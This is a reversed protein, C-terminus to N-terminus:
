LNNKLWQLQRAIINEFHKGKFMDFHYAQPEIHCTKPATIAQYLALGHEVPIVKDWEALVVFTPQTLKQANIKPQYLIAELVTLYPVKINLAPYDHKAHEYFRRSEEDTMVKIIPVMLERGSQNKKQQMREMTNMFREREEEAMDGTVLRNGSAFGMQSIVCKIEPCRVAVDIVLCGGLSTGWLAIRKADIYSQTKSWALVAIIDNNQQEPIIRGQDGGSEGFGRYDFTIAHYGAQAFAQAYLPLLLDQIGYFGHCLLVAPSPVKSNARYVRVALKENQSVVYHRETNM